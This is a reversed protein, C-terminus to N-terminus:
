WRELDRGPTTAELARGDDAGHRDARRSRRARIRRVLLRRGLLLAGVVTALWVVAVALGFYWPLGTPLECPAAGTCQAVLLTTPM